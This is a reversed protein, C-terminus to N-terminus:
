RAALGISISTLQMTAVGPTSGCRRVAPMMKIQQWGDDQAFTALPCLMLSLCLLCYRM